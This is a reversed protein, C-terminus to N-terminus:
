KKDETKERIYELMERAQNLAESTATYANEYPSDIKTCSVLPCGTCKSYELCLGCYTGIVSRVQELASVISIWKM